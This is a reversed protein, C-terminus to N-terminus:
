TAHLIRYSSKSKLVKGKQGPERGSAVKYEPIRIEVKSYARNHSQRRHIVTDRVKINSLLDISRASGVLLYIDFNRLFSDDIGKPTFATSINREGRTKKTKKTSLM